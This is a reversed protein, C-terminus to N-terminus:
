LIALIYPLKYIVKCLRFLYIYFYFFINIGATRVRDELGDEDVGESMM